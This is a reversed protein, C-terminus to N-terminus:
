EEVFGAPPTRTIFHGKVGEPWHSYPVRGDKSDAYHVAYDLLAKAADANPMFKGLVYGIKEEERIHVTCHDSCAFLCAMKQVSIAAYDPSGAKLRQLEDYLLMGGREGNANDRAEKSFRCTSCAVISPGTETKVLM